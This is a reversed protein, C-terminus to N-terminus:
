HYIVRAQTSCEPELIKIKDGLCADSKLGRAARWVALLEPFSKIDIPEFGVNNSVKLKSNATFISHNYGSLLAIGGNIVRAELSYFQSDFYNRAEITIGNYNMYVEGTLSFYLKNRPANTGPLQYCTAEHYALKGVNYDYKIKAITEVIKRNDIASFRYIRYFGELKKPDGIYDNVASVRDKRRIVVSPRPFTELFETRENLVYCMISFTTRSIKAAAKDPDKRFEYLASKTLPKCLTADIKYDRRALNLYYNVDNRFGKETFRKKELGESIFDIAKVVTEKSFPIRSNLYDEM